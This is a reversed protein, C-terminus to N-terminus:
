ARFGHRRDPFSIVAAGFRNLETEFDGIEDLYANNAALQAALKLPPLVSTFAGPGDKSYDLMGDARNAAKLKVVM